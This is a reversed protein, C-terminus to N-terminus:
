RGRRKLSSACAKKMEEYSIGFIDEIEKTKERFIGYESSLKKIEDAVAKNKIKRPLV